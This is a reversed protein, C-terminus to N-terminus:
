RRAGRRSALLALAVAMAAMAPPAAASWAGLTLMTAASALCWLWPLALLALRAPGPSAALLVGLTALATPDPTLAFIEAQMWPRGDLPALLPHLVVAWFLLVLGIRRGAEGHSRDPVLMAPRVLAFGALLAAEIGALWAAYVAVPNIPAYYRWLFSWAVLAWAAALILGSVQEARGVPRLTLVILALGAALAPWQGPWLAENNLAFLRWYVRESFLLLDHPSYSTLTEWWAPM